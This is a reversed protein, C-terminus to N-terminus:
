GSKKLVINEAKKAVLKGYFERLSAYESPLFFAKNFILKSMIMIKNGNVTTSFTCKAANDPLVIAKNAPLEEVTYGNPIELTCVVTRDTLYQFDIPYLRSESVFINTEERLFLHPNFYIKDNAKIVYDDISIDCTEEVPKSIDALNKVEYNQTAWLKDGLDMKYEKAGVSRYRARVEFAAYGDKYSKLKGKLGGEETFTVVADFLTKHRYKPEIPIWGYQARGILFGFQNFCEPPLIDYPLLKNTADVLLDGDKAAVECIVHNFQYSSPIKQDITGSGRKKLLVMSVKLGAKELMSGFLLNIDGSDGEKKELLETPNIGYIHYYNNHEVHQKIYDSIVKIKQREDTMGATLEAVTSAITKYGYFVGGFNPHSLVDKYVAEWDSMGGFGVASIYAEPDSMMPERVFAPIDTMLWHHRAGEYKEEHVAPTLFGRLNYKINKGPLFLTYESKRCPVSHQFTWEPDLYDPHKMTYSIEVVSGEKVKPLAVTVLETERTYSTRKISSEEVETRVVLGNEVNYTAGKIKINGAKYIVFRQNGWEDFAKSNLIKIRIHRKYITSAVANPELEMSGIDFLVVASATDKSYSEASLEKLSVNGFEEPKQGYVLNIGLVLFLLLLKVVKVPSCIKGLVM